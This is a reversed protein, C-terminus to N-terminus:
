RDHDGEADDGGAEVLGPEEVLGHVADQGLVAWKGHVIQDHVAPGVVPGHVYEPACLRAVRVGRVAGKGPAALRVAPM